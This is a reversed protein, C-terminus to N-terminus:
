GRKGARVWNQRLQRDHVHLELGEGDVTGLLKGLLGTATGRYRTSNDGHGGRHVGDLYAAIVQQKSPQLEGDAAARLEADRNQAAITRSCLDALGRRFAAIRPCVPCHLVPARAIPPANRDPGHRRRRGGQGGGAPERSGQQQGAASGEFSRRGEQLSSARLDLLDNGLGVAVHAQRGPQRGFCNRSNRRQRCRQQQRQRNGGLAGAGAMEM